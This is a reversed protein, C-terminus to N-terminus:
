PRLLSDLRERIPRDSADKLLNRISKFCAALIETKPKPSILQADATRIDATLENLAEYDLGLGGTQSKIDTLLTEVITRMAEDILDSDNLKRRDDQKPAGTDAGLEVALDLGPPTLGIGGSLTRIELYGYGMLVEAVRSAEAKELGLADGIEYMSAQTECDGRTRRAMEMLFTKDESGLADQTM